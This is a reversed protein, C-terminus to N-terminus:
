RLWMQFSGGHIEGAILAVVGHRVAAAAAAANAQGGDGEAQPVVEAAHVDKFVAAGHHAAGEIEADGM